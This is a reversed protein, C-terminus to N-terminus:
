ESSALLMEWYRCGFIDETMALHGQSTFDGWNSFWQGLHGLVSNRLSSHIYSGGSFRALICIRIQYTQPSALSDM